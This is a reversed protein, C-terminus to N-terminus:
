DKPLSHTVDSPPLDKVAQLHHTPAPHLPAPRGAGSQGFGGHDGGRFRTSRAQKILALYGFAGYFVVGPLLLIALSWERRCFSLIGLGLSLLSLFACCWGCLRQSRAIQRPTRVWHVVGRWIMERGISRALLVFFAIFVIGVIGVGFSKSRWVGYATLGIALLFVNFFAVGFAIRFVRAVRWFLSLSSWPAYRTFALMYADPIM